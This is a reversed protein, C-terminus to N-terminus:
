GNMAVMTVFRGEDEGPDIGKDKKSQVRYHSFYDFNAATDIPSITINEPPIGADKLQAVNYGVVDVELKGDARKAIFPQWAPTDRQGLNEPDFVYSVKKICPGIHVKVHELHAGLQALRVVVKKSLLVDTSQWGCHALAIAGIDAAEYAIPLCDATLLALVVEKDQTIVADTTVLKRGYADTTWGEGATVAVISDGFPKPLSMLVVHEPDFGSRVAFVRMREPAREREGEKEWLPSMNGDASQSTYIHM